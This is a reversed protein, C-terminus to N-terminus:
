SPQIKCARPAVSRWFQRRRSTQRYVHPTLENNVVAIHRPDRRGVVTQWDDRCDTVTMLSIQRSQRASGIEVLYCSIHM